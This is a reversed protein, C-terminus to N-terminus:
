LKLLRLTPKLYDLCERVNSVQWQSRTANRVKLFEERKRSNEPRDKSDEFKQLERFM